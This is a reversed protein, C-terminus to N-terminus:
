PSIVARIKLFTKKKKYIVHPWTYAQGGGQLLVLRASPFGVHCMMVHLHCWDSASTSASVLLTWTLNPQDNNNDFFTFFSVISSYIMDIHLVYSSTWRYNRVLPTQGLHHKHTAALSTPFYSSWREKEFCVNFGTLLKQKSCLLNFLSFFASSLQNSVM